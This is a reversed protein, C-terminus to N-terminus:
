QGSPGPSTEYHYAIRTRLDRNQKELDEIKRRLGETSESAQVSFEDIIKVFRWLRLMIILSAIEGVENHELM